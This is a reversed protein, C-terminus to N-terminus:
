TQNAREAAQASGSTPRNNGLAHQLWEINARFEARSRRLPGMAEAVRNRCRAIVVASAALVTTAVLLLAFGAPIRAMSAVALGLGVLGVTVCAGAVVVAALIAALPGGAQRFSDRADTGLLEMQLAILQLVDHAMDRIMTM